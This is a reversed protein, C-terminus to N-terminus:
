GQCGHEYVHTELKIRAHESLERAEEVYERIDDYDATNTSLAITARLADVSWALAAASMEYATLLQNHRECM